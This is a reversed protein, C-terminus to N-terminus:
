GDTRGGNGMAARADIVDQMDREFKRRIAPHDKSSGFRDLIESELSDACETLHKRLLEADARVLELEAKLRGQEAEAAELADTLLANTDREANVNAANALLTERTEKGCQKQWHAAMRCKSNALIRLSLFQRRLDDYNGAPEATVEDPSALSASLAENEAILARVAAAQEAVSEDPWGADMRIRAEADLNQLLTNLNEIDAM